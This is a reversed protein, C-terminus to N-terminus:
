SKSKTNYHKINGSNNQSFVLDDDDDDDHNLSVTSGFIDPRATMRSRRTAADAGTVSNFHPLKGNPMSRHVSTVSSSPFMLHEPQPQPSDSHDHEHINIASSLEYLPGSLLSESLSIISSVASNAVREHLIRSRGSFESRDPLVPSANATILSNPNANANANPSNQSNNTNGSNALSFRRRETASNTKNNTGRRIRLVLQECM